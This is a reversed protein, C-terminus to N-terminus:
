ELSRRMAEQIMRNFEEDDEEGEIMPSSSNMQLSNNLVLALEIEEDTTVDDGNFKVLIDHEQNRQDQLYRIENLETKITKHMRDKRAGELGNLRKKRTHEKKIEGVHFFILVRDVLVLGMTKNNEALVVQSVPFSQQRGVSPFHRPPLRKSVLSLFQGSLVCFVGACGNHTALLVVTSNVAVSSLLHHRVARKDFKPTFWAQPRLSARVNFTVVEGTRTIAAMNCGDLGATNSLRESKRELALDMVLGPIVCDSSRGFSTPDISYSWLHSESGVIVVNGGFDVAFFDVGGTHPIIQSRSPTLVHIESETLAVLTDRLGRMKLVNPVKYEFLVEFTKIDSVFVSSNDASYCRVDDDNELVIVRGRHKRSMATKNFGKLEYKLVKGDVFGVVADHMAFSVCTAGGSSLHVRSEVRSKELNFVDVTGSEDLTCCRPYAMTARVLSSNNATMVRTSTQERRWARMNAARSFLETSFRSSRTLSSFQAASHFRRQFFAKWLEEDKILVHLGTCTASVAQIDQLPLHALVEITLESPLDLLM